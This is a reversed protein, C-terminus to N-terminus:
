APVAGSVEAEDLDVVSSAGSVPTYSDSNQPGLTLSM